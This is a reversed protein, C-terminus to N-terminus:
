YIIKYSKINPIITCLIKEITKEKSEHNSFKSDSERCHLMNLHQINKFKKGIYSIWRILTPMYDAKAMVSNGSEGFKEEEEFYEMHLSELQIAPSKITIETKEEYLYAQVLKVKKLKPLASSYIEEMNELSVTARKLVLDELLPAKHIDKLLMNVMSTVISVNYNFGFDVELQKLNPFAYYKFLCPMSPHNQPQYTIKELHEWKTTIQKSSDCYIGNYAEKWEITKVNPFLTPFILIDNVDFYKQFIILHKVRKGM